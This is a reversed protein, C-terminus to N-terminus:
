DDEGNEQQQQYWPAWPVRGQAVLEDILATGIWALSSAWTSPWPEHRAIWRLAADPGFEHVVPELDLHCRHCLLVMNSPTAKGGLSHPILHARELRWVVVLHGWSSPLLQGGALRGCAFCAYVTPHLPKGLRATGVPTLAWYRLIRWYAPPTSRPIRAPTVLSSGGCL